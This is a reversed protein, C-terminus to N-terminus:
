GPRNKRANPVGGGSLGAALHRARDRVRAIGAPSNYAAFPPWLFVLVALEELLVAREIAGPDGQYGALYATMVERPVRVGAPAARVSPFALDSSARGAGASQWDCFVLGDAGHLVNGAHCDGHVFVVPQAALEGRLRERSDLIEALGPLEDDWFGTVAASVPGSMADLLADPRVWEQESVPVAHLSGLDGGLAAWARGDWSGAEVEDGSDALLLVVGRDSDLADLLVPTRVPVRAALEWYFRLERHAGALARAGLGVPMIKLYAARGDATRVPHVGAGSRGNAPRAADSVAIRFERAALSLLEAAM